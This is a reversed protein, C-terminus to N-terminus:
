KFKGPINNETQWWYGQGKRTDTGRNKTFKTKLSFYKLFTILEVQFKLCKKICECKVDFENTM